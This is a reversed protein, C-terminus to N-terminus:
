RTLMSINPVWYRNSGREVLHLGRGPLDTEAVGLFTFHLPDGIVTQYWGNRRLIDRVEPSSYEAVDFAIMTLHQSAGPPATSSFISRTRDTSFFIGQSEWGLIMEVRKQLDVKFIADRDAATLRGRRTWYDLASFFRGNWLMLTDGYTRSGAIAGDYPTISFGDASAEAVARQLSEAAATQLVVKIGGIEFATTSLNKQFKLVESEGRFICRDPLTVVDSASFMSGYERLARAAGADTSVPCFTDIKWATDGKGFRLALFEEFPQPNAPQAPQASTSLSFVFILVLAKISWRRYHPPM